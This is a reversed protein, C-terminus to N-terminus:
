PSPPEYMASTVEAVLSEAMETSLELADILQLDFEFEEDASDMDALAIAHAVKYAIGRAEASLGKALERLREDVDARALNKNLRDLMENLRRDSVPAEGAKIPASRYAQGEVVKGTAGLKEMVRRFAELEYDALKRDATIALYAIELVGDAEAHTLTCDDPIVRSAIVAPDTM